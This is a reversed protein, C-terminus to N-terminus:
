AKLIPDYTSLIDYDLFKKRKWNPGEVVIEFRVLCTTLLIPLRASVRGPVQATRQISQQRAAEATTRPNSRSPIYIGKSQEPTDDITIVENSREKRGTPTAPQLTCSCNPCYAFSSPLDSHPQATAPCFQHVKTQEM